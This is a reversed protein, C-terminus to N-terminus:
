PQYRECSSIFVANKISILHPLGAGECPVGAVMFEGGSVLAFQCEQVVSGCIDDTPM